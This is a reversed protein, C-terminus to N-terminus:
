KVAQDPVAKQYRSPCKLLIEDAYFIGNAKLQGTVIAQAMHRLLEPKEGLYVIQIKPRNPDNVADQLVVGLGGQQEVLAYDAPVEVIFFSLKGSTSDYEITDGLVAGSIRVSNGILKDKRNLLESVTIFYQASSQTSSTVLYWFSGALLAFGCLAVFIVVGILIKTKNM